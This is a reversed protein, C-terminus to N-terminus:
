FCVCVCVIVVVLGNECCDLVHPVKSEFLLIDSKSLGLGTIDALVEAIRGLRRTASPPVNGLLWMCLQYQDADTFPTHTSVARM